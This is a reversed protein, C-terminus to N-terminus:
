GADLPRTAWIGNTPTAASRRLAPREIGSSVRHKVSAGSCWLSWFGIQAVRGLSAVGNAAAKEAAPLKADDLTKLANFQARLVDADVIEGSQPENPNFPM